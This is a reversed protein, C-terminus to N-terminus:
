EACGPDAPIEPGSLCRRFIAVDDADVDGDGDLRAGACQPANQAVGPGSLCAQFRGFDEQDVDLDVDLDGPVPKVRLRVDLVVPSNFALPDRVEITAQYDGPVLGEVHYTVSVDDPEGTSSGSTPEVTIWATQTVIQYNLTGGGGNRVTFHDTPPNVSWVTAPAFGAPEVIIYPGIGTIPKNILADTRWTNNYWDYGIGTLQTDRIRVVSFAQNGHVVKCDSTVLYDYGRWRGVRPYHEHGHCMLIINHGQVANFFRDWQAHPPDRPTYHCFIVVPQQAPVGTMHQELFPLASSHFPTDGSTWGDLGIFHVGQHDFSYSTNGHRGTIAARIQTAGPENYSDHNGTIEYIPMTFWRNICSIFDDDTMGDNDQYQAFATNETIDGTVLVFRIQGVTGGIQSPYPKGALSAIDEASNDRYGGGDNAGFHTDSWVAFTFDVAHAQNGGVTALLVACGWIRRNM